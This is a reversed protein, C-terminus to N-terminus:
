RAARKANTLAATYAAQAQPSTPRRGLERQAAHIAQRHKLPTAQWCSACLPERTRGLEDGCGPCRLTTTM